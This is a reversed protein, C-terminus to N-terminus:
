DISFSRHLESSAERVVHEMESHTREFRSSERFDVNSRIDLDNDFRHHRFGIGDFDLDTDIGHRIRNIEFDIDPDIDFRSIGLDLDARRLERDIMADIRPGLNDLDVTSVDFDLEPVFVSNAYAAGIGSFGLVLPVIATLVRHWREGM